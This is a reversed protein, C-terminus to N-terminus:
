ATQQPKGDVSPIAKMLAIKLIQTDSAKRLYDIKLKAIYEIQKNLFSSVDKDNPKDFKLTNAAMPSKSVYDQYYPKVENSVSKGSSAIALLFDDELGDEKVNTWISGPIKLLKLAATVNTSNASRRDGLKALVDDSLIKKGSLKSLYRAITQLTKRYSASIIVKKVLARAPAATEKSPLMKKLDNVITM